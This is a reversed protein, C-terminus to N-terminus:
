SDKYKWRFNKYVHNEKKDFCLKNIQRRSGCIHNAAFNATEFENIVNGSLDLQLVKKLKRPFILNSYM